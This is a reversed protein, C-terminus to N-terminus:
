YYGNPDLSRCFNNIKVATSYKLHSMTISGHLARNLRRMKCTGFTICIKTIKDDDNCGSGGGDGGGGGGGDDDDDDDDDDNNSYNENLFCLELFM